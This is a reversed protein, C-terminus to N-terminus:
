IATDPQWTTPCQLQFISNISYARKGIELRQYITYPDVLTKVLNQSCLSRVIWNGYLIANPVQVYLFNDAVSTSTM